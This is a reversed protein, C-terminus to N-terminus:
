AHSHADPLQGAASSASGWPGQTSTQDPPPPSVQGAGPLPHDLLLLIRSSDTPSTIAHQPLGRCGTPCACCCLRAEQTPISSSVAILLLSEPIFSAGLQRHPNHQSASTHARKSVQLLAPHRSACTSVSHSAFATASSVPFEPFTSAMWALFPLPAHHRCSHSQLPCVGSTPCLHCHGRRPTAAWAPLETHTCLCAYM